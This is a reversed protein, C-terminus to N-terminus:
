KLHYYQLIIYLLSVSIGYEKAWKKAKTGMEGCKSSLLVRDAVERMTTSKVASVSHFQLLSHSKDSCKVEFTRKKNSNHTHLKEMQEQVIQLLINSADENGLDALIELFTGGGPIPQHNFDISVDSLQLKKLTRNDFLAFFAKLAVPNQTTCLNSLPRGSRLGELLHKLIHISGNSCLSDFSYANLCKKVVLAVPTQGTNNEDEVAAPYAEILVRLVQLQDPELSSNRSNMAKSLFCLLPTSGGKNKIRASNPYAIILTEISVASANTRLGEHLPTNGNSGVEGGAKPNAQILSKIFEVSIGRKLQCSMALHLATNQNITKLESTEPCANLLTELAENSVGCSIGRVLPSYGIGDKESMLSPSEHILSKLEVMDVEGCTEMIEHLRNKGM